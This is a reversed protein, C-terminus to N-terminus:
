RMPSSVKVPRPPAGRKKKKKQHPQPVRAAEIWELEHQEALMRPMLDPKSASATDAIGTTEFNSL